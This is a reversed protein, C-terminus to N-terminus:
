LEPYGANSTSYVAQLCWKVFREGKVGRQRPLQWNDRKAKIDGM